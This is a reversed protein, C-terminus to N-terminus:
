SRMFEAFDDRRTVVHVKETDAHDSISKMLEVEILRKHRALCKWKM